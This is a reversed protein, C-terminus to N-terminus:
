RGIPLHTQMDNSIQFQLRCRQSQIAHINLNDIAHFIM